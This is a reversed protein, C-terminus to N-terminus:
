ISNCTHASVTLEMIGCDLVLYAYVTTTVALVLTCQRAIEQVTQEMDRIFISDETYHGGIFSQMYTQLSYVELFSHAATYSITIYSGPQPNHSVPCLKEILLKHKSEIRLMPQLNPMVGLM